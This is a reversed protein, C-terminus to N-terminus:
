TISQSFSRSSDYNEGTESERIIRRITEIMERKAELRLATKEAEEEGYLAWGSRMNNDWMRSLVKDMWDLRKVLEEIEM